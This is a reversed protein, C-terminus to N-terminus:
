EELLWTDQWVLSCSALLIKLFFVFEGNFLAQFIFNIFSFSLPFFCANRHPVALTPLVTRTKRGLGLRTGKGPQPREEQLRQLRQTHSQAAELLTQRMRNGPDM